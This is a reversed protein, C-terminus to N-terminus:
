LSFYFTRCFLLEFPFVENAADSNNDLSFCHQMVAMVGTSLPIHLSKPKPIQKNLCHAMHLNKHISIPSHRMISWLVLEVIYLLELSDGDTSFRVTELNRIQICLLVCLM